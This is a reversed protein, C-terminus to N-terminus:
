KLNVGWCWVWANGKPSVAGGGYGGDGQRSKEVSFDPKRGEGPYPPVPWSTLPSPVNGLFLM